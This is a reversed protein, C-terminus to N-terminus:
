TDTVAAAGTRAAPRHRAPAPRTGPAARRTQVRAVMAARDSARIAATDHEIGRLIARAVRELMAAARLRYDGALRRENKYRQAQRPGCRLARAIRKSHAADVFLGFAEDTTRPLFNSTGM